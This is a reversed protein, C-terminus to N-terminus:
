HSPLPSGSVKRDNMCEATVVLKKKQVVVIEQTHNDSLVNVAASM